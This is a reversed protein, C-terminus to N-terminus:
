TGKGTVRQRLEPLTGLFIFASLTASTICWTCWARLRVGQLYILLASIGLSTAGAVPLLADAIEQRPGPTRPRFGALATVAGYGLVGFIADPIGLPYAYQSRLVRGCGEGLGPCAVQEIVHAQYLFAYGSVAAGALGAVALMSQRVRNVQSGRFEGWHPAGAEFYDFSEGECGARGFPM